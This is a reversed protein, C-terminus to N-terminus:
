CSYLDPVDQRYHHIRSLLASHYERSTIPTIWSPFSKEDSGHKKKTKRYIASARDYNTLYTASIGIIDLPQQNKFIHKVKTM